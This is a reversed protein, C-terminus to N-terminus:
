FCSCARVPQGRIEMCAGLHSCMCVYVCLIFLSKKLNICYGAFHNLHIASAGCAQLGSNAGSGVTFPLFGNEFVARQGCTHCQSM